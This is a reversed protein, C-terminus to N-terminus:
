ALQYFCLGRKDPQKVAVFWIEKLKYPYPRGLEMLDKEFEVSGDECYEIPGTAELWSRNMRPCLVANRPPTYGETAALVRVEDSMTLWSSPSEGVVAHELAYAASTFPEASLRTAVGAYTIAASDSGM